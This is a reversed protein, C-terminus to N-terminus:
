RLLGLVRQAVADRRFDCLLVRVELSLLTLDLQVVLEDGDCPLRHLAGLRAVSGAAGVEGHHDVARALQAHLLQIQCSVERHVLLPERLQLACNSCVQTDLLGRLASMFLMALSPSVASRSNAAQVFFFSAESASWAPSMSTRRDSSGSGGCAPSLTRFMSSCSACPLGTSPACSPRMESMAAIPEIGWIFPPPSALAIFPPLYCIVYGSGISPSQDSVSLM